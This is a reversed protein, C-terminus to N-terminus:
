ASGKGERRLQGAIERILEGTLREETCAQQFLLLSALAERHVERSEFIVMMEGALEKLEETRGQEWLLYALDLSVLAADLGKGLGLFERRISRYAAEAEGPRGLGQVINGETWRLRLWDVTGASAEYLTQVEPLLEAAEEFRSALTLSFLLNQRARAFLGPERAPDIESSAIQLVMIAETVHGRQNLIKSKQLLAKAAGAPNGAERYLAEARVVLDLAEDLRRQDLRLSGKLSLIEAEVGPNGNGRKELSEIALLFSDEAAQLEGLVRRANGLHAHSRARLELVWDPHYSDGLHGALRVALHATEVAQVPDSFVLERVKQILLQCVGWTHLEEIEDARRMREAHTGEGLLALLEPAERSELVAVTEDWHGSAKLLGDIEERLAHCVPCSELFHPALERLVREHEMEGALWRALTELSPHDDKL